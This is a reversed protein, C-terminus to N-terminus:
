QATGRGFTLTPVITSEWMFPRWVMWDGGAEGLLAGWAVQEPRVTEYQGKIERYLIREEGPHVLVLDPFGKGDAGVPTEWHTDGKANTVQVSRFHAVSWGMTHALTIVKQQLQGGTVYNRSM